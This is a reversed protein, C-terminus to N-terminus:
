LVIWISSVLNKLILFFITSKSVWFNKMLSIFNHKRSMSFNIKMSCFAVRFPQDWAVDTLVNGGTTIFPLELVPIKLRKGVPVTANDDIETKIINNNKDRYIFM